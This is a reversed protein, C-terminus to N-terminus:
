IQEHIDKEQYRIWATIQSGKFKKDNDTKRRAQMHVKSTTHDRNKNIKRRRPVMFFVAWPYIVQTRTM